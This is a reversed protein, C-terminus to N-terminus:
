ETDVSRGFIRLRFVLLRFIPLYDDRRNSYIMRQLPQREVGLMTPLNEKAPKRDSVCPRPDIVSIHKSAGHKTIQM